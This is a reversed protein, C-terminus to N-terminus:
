RRAKGKRGKQGWEWEIRFGYTNVGDGSKGREGKGEKDREM